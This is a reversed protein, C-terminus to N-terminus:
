LWKISLFAWSETHNLSKGLTMYSSFDSSSLSWFQCRSQYPFISFLLCISLCLFTYGRFDCLWLASALLGHNPHPATHMGGRGRRGDQLATSCRSVPSGPASWWLLLFVVAVDSFPGHLLKWHSLPLEFISKHPRLLSVWVSYNPCRLGFHYYLLAERLTRFPSQLETHLCCMPKLFSVAFLNQDCTIGFVQKWGYSWWLKYVLNM